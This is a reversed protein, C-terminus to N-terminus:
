MPEFFYLANGSFGSGVSAFRVEAIVHNKKSESLRLKSVDMNVGCFHLPRAFFDWSIVSRILVVGSEKRAATSIAYLQVIFLQSIASLLASPSVEFELPCNKKPYMEVKASLKEGDIEADKIVLKDAQYASAVMLDNMTSSDLRCLKLSGFYSSAEVDFYILITESSLTEVKIRFYPEKSRVTSKCNIQHEILSCGRTIEALETNVVSLIIETTTIASLHFGGNSYPHHKQQTIKARYDLASDKRVLDFVQFLDKTRPNLTDTIFTSSYKNIDEDTIKNRMKLNFLESLNTTELINTVVGLSILRM